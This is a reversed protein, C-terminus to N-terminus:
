RNNRRYIKHFAKNMQCLRHFGILHKLKLKTTSRYPLDLLHPVKGTNEYVDLAINVVHSYYDADNVRPLVQMHAELLYSLSRGDATRTIGHPNDYYYYLGVDTTAVLHCRRLLKPLLYIDEFVRGEPYTLGHFLERRYIKNWAYAHEYAKGQLWYERMDTYERRPFQLLRQRNINGYHEYVPYELIDYDPHVAIVEMVQRLTDEQLADDSDIFTVYEGRAKQLGTNRAASLGRNNKHNVIQIRHDKHAYEQCINLGDDTSADNVVILQWDRFSQSIVSDLCRRLTDQSQYVPLIITLKM